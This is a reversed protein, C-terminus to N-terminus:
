QSRAAKGSVSVEHFGFESPLDGDIQPIELGGPSDPLNIIVEQPSVAGDKPAQQNVVSPQEASVSLLQPESPGTITM